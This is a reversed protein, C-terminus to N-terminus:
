QLAGAICFLITLILSVRIVICWGDCPGEPEPYNHEYKNTFHNIGSLYTNYNWCNSGSKDIKPVNISITNTNNKFHDILKPDNGEKLVNHLTDDCKIDNFDDCCGFEGCDDSGYHQNYKNIIYRLSPCNSHLVDRGVVRYLDINIFKYDIHSYDNPIRCNYYIRCCGYDTDDCTKKSYTSHHIRATLKENTLPAGPPDDLTDGTSNTNDNDYYITYELEFTYYAIILLILLICRVCRPIRFFSSLCPCKRSCYKDQHVVITEDRIDFGTNVLEEKEGSSLSDGKELDSM